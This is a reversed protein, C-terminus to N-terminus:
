SRDPMAALHEAYDVAGELTVHRGEGLVKEVVDDGLAIRAHGEVDILAMQTLPPSAAGTTERLSAVAGMVRVAELHRGAASEMAAISELTAVIYPLVRADVFLRLAQALAARGARYRGLRRNAEAIGRLANATHFSDGEEQFSKLAEELLTLAELPKSAVSAVGLALQSWAVVDPRGVRSALDMSANFQRDAQTLDGRMVPVFALNYLAEAEAPQDGAQQYFRAAAKYAVETAEVDALWYTLGGLGTYAKARSASVAGSELALVAELWLRGERLYGRLFWFRWMATGVRLGSEADSLELAYSLAARINAHEAEIRDVWPLAQTSFLHPEAREVLDRYYRLHRERIEELSGEAELRARGFDRITELMGFRSEGASHGRKVLSQDILSAIGVLTEMGLESGPNAIAEVAELTCGGAPVALRMFLRQESPNLLEYSWGIAASLTRQRAPVDAPATLLPLRDQLRALIEAPELHRVRSAALEIALPLGDLRICVQTVAEANEESLSFAPNAAQAREVFLAIAGYTELQGPDVGGSPEPLGLPAVPFDQEGYLNLISRSTILIKLGRAEAVLHKIVSGAGLLHELNDLVLLLQREGLHDKLAEITPRDPQDILGLTRAVTPVVLDPDTLPALDVFWAGDVFDGAVSRALEIALATKGTGGPGVLTILRHDALLRRLDDLDQARGVFSNFRRPVHAKGGDLSRLPPFEAPLGKIIVQHLREPRILGKLHHEGLDQLEVGEELSRETLARTAQSILVQGGHAAAAIRAALNVDVGVYDDGGLIGAGSHIGMRVRVEAGVPWPFAHLSRQVAVAASVASPAEKFIVLFGDGQTGREIGGHAEFATRLLHHHQELLERYTASDLEEVLRTSGEIDSFLFTVTGTPLRGRSEDM